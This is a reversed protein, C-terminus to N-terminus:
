HRRTSKYLVHPRLPHGEAVNPHEFSGLYEMGIKQMVRESRKNLVTTFAYIEHINLESFAYEICAKAGETAYGNGWFEKRLRWGIEICPSFFSEFTVKSLGIFGIFENESKLDVAYLGFGHEVFYAKVRKLFAESRERSHTEPYYEMVVPDSCMAVYPETDSEVWHRFGLHESEFLYEV